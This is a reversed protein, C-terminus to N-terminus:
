KIAGKEKLKEIVPRVSISEGMREASEVGARDRIIKLLRGLGWGIMIIIVAVFVFFISAWKGMNAQFNMFISASERIGGSVMVILSIVLAAAWAKIGSFFPVFKVVSLMVLLIFITMAVLVILFSITLSESQPIGFLLKFPRAFSESINVEGFGRAFSEHKITLTQPEQASVAPLLLSLLFSLVLLFMLDKKM